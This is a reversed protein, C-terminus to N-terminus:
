IWIFNRLFVEKNRRINVVILLFLVIVNVAKFLKVLCLTSCRVKTISILKQLFVFIKSLSFSVHDSWLM